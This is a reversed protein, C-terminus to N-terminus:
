RAKANEEISARWIAAPSRRGSSAKSTSTPAASASAPCRSTTSRPSRRRRRIRARSRHARGRRSVDSRRGLGLRRGSEADRCLLRRVIRKDKTPDVPQDPEVYDDRKGNGNTDLIMPTWGQSKRRTVPREFIKMDLWGIVPGGGSTWLMDNADLLQLHHTSFCTDVFTYKKTKPDLMALQRNAASWRFRKPRLITRAKRASPPITRVASRRRSGSAAKATSCPTTTTRRAQGSGSTAGIPRRSCATGRQGNGSREPTDADRVPAPLNEVTNKKPDLVPIVDISIRHSGYLPGYANVTPFRRDSAILDHLYHKDDLWDWTTVVINREVGQPGRQSRTLCSAKPSAIRGTPLIVCRRAAWKGQGHNSCPSAAKDRNSAAFGPKRRLQSSASPTRCTTPFLACPAIASRHCNACGNSKMLNLYENQTM